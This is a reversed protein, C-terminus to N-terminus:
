KYNKFFSVAGDSTVELIIQKTGNSLLPFYTDEDDFPQNFLSMDTDNAENDDFLIVKEVKYGSYKKDIYQKARVPLASYDVKTTTGILDNDNDYYATKLVAGDYFTAEAFQGETWSVDKADPFDYYFQNETAVNVSHLWLEKREERRERRLQRRTEKDAKHGIMGANVSTFFATIVATTLLVKKMAKLKLNFFSIV